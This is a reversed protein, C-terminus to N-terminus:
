KPVMTATPTTVEDDDLEDQIQRIAESNVYAGAEVRGVRQGFGNLDRKMEELKETVGGFRTALDTVQNQMAEMRLDRVQLDGRLGNIAVLVVQNNSNARELALDAAATAVKRAGGGKLFSILFSTALGVVGAGGVVHEPKLEM